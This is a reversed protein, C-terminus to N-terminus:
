SFQKLSFFIFSVEDTQIKNFPQLHRNFFNALATKLQLTGSSDIYHQNEATVSLADGQMLREQIEKEMLRNVATGM